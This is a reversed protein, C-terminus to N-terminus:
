WYKLILMKRLKLRKWIINMFKNMKRWVIITPRGRRRCRVNLFVNLKRRNTRLRMIRSRLRLTLNSPRLFM